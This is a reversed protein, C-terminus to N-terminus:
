RCGPLACREKRKTSHIWSRLPWTALWGRVSPAGVEWAQTRADAISSKLKVVSWVLEGYLRVMTGSGSPVLQAERVSDKLDAIFQDVVPVTLRTVAIHVAAPGSLANLHWGKKAMTDGVELM